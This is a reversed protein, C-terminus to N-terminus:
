KHLSELHMNTNIGAEKRYCSAWMEKREVYYSNFYKLFSECDPFKSYKITFFKLHQTFENEDLERQLAILDGMMERGRTIDSKYPIHKEWNKVIHWSCLLHHQPAGYVKKYANYYAPFDDSMFTKTLKLEGSERLKQFFLECVSTDM